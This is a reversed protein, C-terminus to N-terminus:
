LEKKLDILLLEEDENNVRIFFQTFNDIDLVTSINEQMNYDALLDEFKGSENQKVIILIKKM